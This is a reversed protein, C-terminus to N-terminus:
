VLAEEMEDMQRDLLSSEDIKKVLRMAAALIVRDLDHEVFDKGDELTGCFVMQHHHNEDEGFRFDRFNRIKYTRSCQKQVCEKNTEYYRMATEEDLYCLALLPNVLVVFGDYSDPYIHIAEGLPRNDIEVSWILRDQPNLGFM